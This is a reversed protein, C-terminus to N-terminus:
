VYEDLQHQDITSHDASARSPSRKEEEGYEERRGSDLEMTRRKNRDKRLREDIADHREPEDSEHGTKEIHPFPAVPEIVNVEKLNSLRSSRSADRIPPVNFM